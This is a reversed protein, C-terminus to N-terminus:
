ERDPENDAVNDRVDKTDAESLLSEDQKKGVSKKGSKKRKLWAAKRVEYLEFQNELYNDAM